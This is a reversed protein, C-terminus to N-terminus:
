ASPEFGLAVLSRMPAFLPSPLEDWGFWEWGECKHPELTKPEGVCEHALVFVTLYQQEVEPFVDNTYPGLTVAGLELSTEERLERRACDEISEGYELRGGPPSWTGAGHSGKRRGLLIKGARFVLVGVGVGISKPGSAANSM